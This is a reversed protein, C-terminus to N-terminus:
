SGGDGDDTEEPDPSPTETPEPEPELSESPTPEPEPEPTPTREDEDAPSETTAPPQPDADSPPAPQTTRAGQTRSPKPTPPDPPLSPEPLPVPVPTATTVLAQLVTRAVLRHGASTLHIGDTTLLGSHRGGTNRTRLYETFQQRIDCVGAGLEAALQRVAEAFLDLRANAASQERVDEGLVGPTCLMVWAGGEQIRTVLRGLGERYEEVGQEAAASGPGLSAVDNVGVYIVVHSPRRRLVDRQVRRELDGVTDGVVGSGRVQIRRDPYLNELADGVLNVYGGDDVGGVTISDGFFILRSGDRLEVREPGIGYKEEVARRQSELVEPDIGTDNSCAVLTLVALAAVAGLRCRHFRM